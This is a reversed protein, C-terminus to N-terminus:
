LIWVKSFGGNLIKSLMAIIIQSDGEVILQHFGLQISTHIGHILAWIKADNNSDYSLSGDLIYHLKVDQFSGGFCALDPNGKSAGDFNMQLLWSPSAEM